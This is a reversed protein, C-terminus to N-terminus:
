RLRVLVYGGHTAMVPKGLTRPDAPPAFLWDARSTNQAVYADFGDENVKGIWNSNMPAVVIFGAQVLENARQLTTLVPQRPGVAHLAERLVQPAPPYHLPPRPDGMALRFPFYLPGVTMLAAFVGWTTRVRLPTRGLASVRGMVVSALGACLMFGLPSGYFLFRDLDAKPWGELRAFMAIFLGLVFPIVVIRQRPPGRWAAWALAALFVPGLELLFFGAGEASFVPVGTDMHHWYPLTPPWALALHPANMSSHGLAGQVVGSRAAGGALAAVCAASWRLAIGGALVVPLAVVTVMLTLEESLRPLVALLPLLLAPHPLRRPLPAPGNRYYPLIVALACTFLLFGLATPRRLLIDVYTQTTEGHLARLAGGQLAYRILVPGFGAVFLLRAVQATARNRFLLRTIVGLNLLTIAVCASTVLDMGLENDVPLARVLLAVVADYLPHYVLPSSPDNLATPPINGRLYTGVVAAHCANDYRNVVLITFSVYAGLAMDVKTLLAPHVRRKQCWRWSAGALAALPLAAGWAMFVLSGLLEGASMGALAVTCLLAPALAPGHHGAWLVGTRGQIVFFSGAAVAAAALILAATM